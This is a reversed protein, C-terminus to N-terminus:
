KAQKKADAPKFGTSPPPSKGQNPATLAPPDSADMSEDLGRDLKADEDTPDADLRRRIDKDLGADGPKTKATM